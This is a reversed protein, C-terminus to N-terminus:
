RQLKPDNAAREAYLREAESYREVSKPMVGNDLVEKVSTSPGRPTRKLEHGCSCHYLKNAKDHDLIKKSKAGCGPCEFYYLPM